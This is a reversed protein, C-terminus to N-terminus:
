GTASWCRRRRGRRAAAGGTFPDDPTDLFTGRFLTMPQGPDAHDSTTADFSQWCRPRWRRGRDDGPGQRHLAPCGSRPSSGTSPAEADHGEALLKGRFRAWKASSGILGISGSTTPRAARRRRARRGRRPRPDDGARAHRPPLEGLVLEPLVPVHHVHVRAVADALPPWRTRPWSSPGRTSSTCTSTTAPWSGRWSAARRPGHRLDRRGPVVALPELLM